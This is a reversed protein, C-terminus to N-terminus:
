DTLDTTRLPVRGPRDSLLRVKLRQAM